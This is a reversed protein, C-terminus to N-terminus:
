STSLLPADPHGALRDIADQMADMKDLMDQALAIQCRARVLNHGPYATHYYVDGKLYDELFRAAQEATISFCGLALAEKEQNSLIAGAESLFGGAFAIFTELDLKAEDLDPSDEPSMTRISDGFDYASLGPMVTDLDIVALAEKTAPDFLVNSIKADNHAVRLPLGMETIRCAPGRLAEMAELERAAEERFPASFLDDFRKPTNHFDPITVHLSAADFDGLMKQFAGFAKGANYVIQNDHSSEYTVSPIFNFIRIFRDNQSVYSKGDDTKFVKLNVGDPNKRQIHATVKEINEMVEVPNRFVFTNLAQILCCADDEFRVKWTKNIHGATMADISVVKSDLGFRALINDFFDVEQYDVGQNYVM